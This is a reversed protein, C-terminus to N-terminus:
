SHLDKLLKDDQRPEYEILNRLIIIRTYKNLNNKFFNLIDAKIIIVSAALTYLHGLPRLAHPGPNLDWKSWPTDRYM